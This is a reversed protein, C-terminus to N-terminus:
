CRFVIALFHNAAFAVSTQWRAGRITSLLLATMRVIQARFLFQLLCISVDSEKKIANFDSQVSTLPLSIHLSRVHVLHFKQNFYQIDKCKLKLRNICHLMPAYKIWFVLTWLFKMETTGCKVNTVLFCHNLYMLNPFGLFLYLACMLIQHYSFSICCIQHEGFIFENVTLLIFRWSLWSILRNVSFLFGGVFV